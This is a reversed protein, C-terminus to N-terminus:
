PPVLTDSVQEGLSTLKVQEIGPLGNLTVLGMDSFTKLVESFVDPDLRSQGLLGQVQRTLSQMPQPSSRQLLSLILLPNIGLTQQEGGFSLLNQLFPDGQMGPAALTVFRSLLHQIVELRTVLASAVRVTDSETNTLQLLTATSNQTETILRELAFQIRQATSQQEVVFTDTLRTLQGTSEILAQFVTTIKMAQQIFEAVGANISVGLTNFSNATRDLSTETAYIVQFAQNLRGELSTLTFTIKEALDGLKTSFGEIQAVLAALTQTNRGQVDELRKASTVSEVGFQVISQELDALSQGLQGTTQSLSATSQQFAGMQQVVQVIQVQVNQTIQVSEQLAQNVQSLAQNQAANPNRLQRMERLSRNALIELAEELLAHLDQELRRGQLKRREGYGGILAGLLFLSANLVAIHSVAFLTNGTNFGIEWLLWFSQNADQPHLAIDGQYQIFAWGLAAFTLILPLIFFINRILILRQVLRMHELAITKEVGASDIYQYLEAPTFFQIDRDAVLLREAVRKAGLRTSKEALTQISESIAPLRM